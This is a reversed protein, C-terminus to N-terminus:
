CVISYDDKRGTGWEEPFLSNGRGYLNLTSGQAAYYPEQMTKGEAGNVTYGSYIACASRRIVYLMRLRNGTVTITGTGHFYVMGDYQTTVCGRTPADGSFVVNGSFFVNSNGYCSICDTETASFEASGCIVCSGERVTLIKTFKINNFHVYAGYCTVMNLTVNYGTGNIYIKTDNGIFSLHELSETYDSLFSLTVGEAPAYKRGKMWTLFGNLTKFPRAQTGDATGDNGTDANLYVTTVSGATGGRGYQVCNQVIKDALGKTVRSAVLDSTFM